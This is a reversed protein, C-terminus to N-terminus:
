RWNSNRNGGQGGRSNGGGFGGSRPPRNGGANGGGFGGARPPRSAGGGFGGGGSGQPRAESVIIKKDEIMAGNLEAIALDAKEIDELEVFGFGRSKQTMSDNIIKASLVTGYEDFIKRLDPEALEFPLGGVFLKKPM